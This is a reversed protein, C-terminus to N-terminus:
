KYDFTAAVPFHDSAGAPCTTRANGPNQGRPTFIECGVPYDGKPGKEVFRNHVVHVSGDRYRFGSVRGAALDAGQSMLMHDLNNWIKDRKFYFTGGQDRPLNELGSDIAFFSGPGADFLQDPKSVMKLSQTFPTDKLEDNFDGLAIVLRGPHAREIDAVIQAMQVAVERRYVERIPGKARSPWHNVLVTVLGAEGPAGTRLTVELIDRTKTVEGSADKWSDKWVRHSRTSEAPFKSILGCRIGRADDTPGTIATQYAGGLGEKVLRDLMGQNEIETVGLIDPNELRIVEGLNKIKDKVVTETWRQDGNPTFETDDTDPSDITDFLNEVNYGMVKISAGTTAPPPVNGADQSQASSAILFALAGLLVHSTTKM